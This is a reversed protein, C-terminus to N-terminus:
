WGRRPRRQHRPPRGAPRARRSSRIFARGPALGRRQGRCARARPGPARGHARRRDRGPGGDVGGPGGRPGQPVHRRAVCVPVGRGRALPARFAAVEADLAACIRSVESRASGRSAWAGPRPRGGPPDVGRCTRRRSSRSCPGSRGGGRSSCADPLVLRRPGQPGRPRDHGGPHGLPPRPVRQAVDAPARPRARGQAAGTLESVEAEMVAQALVRVGERLFDTDGDATAKRLMELLAMRDEAM